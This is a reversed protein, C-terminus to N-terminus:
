SAKLNLTAIQAYSVGTHYVGSSSYAYTYEVWISGLIPTGIDVPMAISNVPLYLNQEGGSQMGSSELLTNVASQTQFVAPVGNSNMPTGEPVFVFNAAIWNNGTEQGLTVIINADSHSYLAGSCLFGPSAICNSVSGNNGNFLGLGFLVSLVVAILLIAWGYTMLYEMASQAKLTEM